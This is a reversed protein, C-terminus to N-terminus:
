LCCFLQVFKGFFNGYFLFLLLFHFVLTQQLFKKQNQKTKNKNRKQANKDRQLSKTEFSRNGEEM